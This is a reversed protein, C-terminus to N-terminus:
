VPKKENWVSYKELRTGLAKEEKLIATPSVGPWPQQFVGLITSYKTVHCMIFRSKSTPKLTQCGQNNKKQLRFSNNLRFSSMEFHKCSLIKVFKQLWKPLRPWPNRRGGNQVLLLGQPRPQYKEIEILASARREGAMDDAMNFYAILRLGNKRPRRVRQGFLLSKEEFLSAKRVLCSTSKPSGLLGCCNSRRYFYVPTFSRLNAPETQLLNQRNDKAFFVLREARVKSRHARHKNNDHRLNFHAQM